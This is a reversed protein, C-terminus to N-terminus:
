RYASFSALAIEEVDSVRFYKRGAVLCLGNSMQMDSMCVPMDLAM